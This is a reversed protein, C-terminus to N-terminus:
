DLVFEQKWDASDEVAPQADKMAAAAFVLRKRTTMM